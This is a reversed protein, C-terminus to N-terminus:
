GYIEVSNFQDIEDRLTILQEILEDLQSPTLFATQTGDEKGGTETELTIVAEPLNKRQGNGIVELSTGVQIFLKTDSNTDIQKLTEKLEM